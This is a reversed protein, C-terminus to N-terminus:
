SPSSILSKTRVRRKAKQNKPGDAVRPSTTSKPAPTATRTTSIMSNASLRIPSDKSPLPPCGKQSRRKPNRGPLFYLDNFFFMHPLRQEKKKSMGVLFFDWVLNQVQIVTNALICVSKVHILWFQALHHLSIEVPKRSM